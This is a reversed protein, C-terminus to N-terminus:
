RIRLSRGPRLLTRPTIRNLKCLKTVTTHHRLAISGLNDGSRVRYYAGRRMQYSRKGIKTFYKFTEPTITFSNSLLRGEPFDYMREANFPMGQYRVEYHLHPGTSRGTSGGLGLVQGAKVFDGPKVLTRHFHGYLTELGNYHRVVVYNGYGGGDWKSIRVVGDFAARVTDGKNLDLDTGYHWRDRMGFSSTVPNKEMPMKYYRKHAFDVLELDVTDKFQRPDSRYPNINRTDWIAYYGAIRIWSSDILIEETIEVIEQEGEDITSTDENLLNLEKAPNFYISRAADSTDEPIDEYKILITTDPRIYEIKPAKVKFFDKSQTPKPPTKVTKGPQAVALGSFLLLWSILLSLFTNESFKL